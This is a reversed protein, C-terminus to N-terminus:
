MRANAENLLGLSHRRIPYQARPRPHGRRPALVGPPKVPRGGLRALGAPHPAYRRSTHRRRRPTGSGTPPLLGHQPAAPAAPRCRGAAIRSPTESQQAVRMATALGPRGGTQGGDLHGPPRACSGPRPRVGLSAKRAPDPASGSRDAGVRVRDLAVPVDSGLRRSRRRCQHVTHAPSHEPPSTAVTSVSGIRRAPDGALDAAGGRDVVKKTM